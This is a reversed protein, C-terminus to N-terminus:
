QRANRLRGPFASKVVKRGTERQIASVFIRVAVAAMRATYEFARRTTACGAMCCCRAQTTFTQWRTMDRGVTDALIAM